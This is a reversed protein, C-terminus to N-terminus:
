TWPATDVAMGLSLLIVLFVLLGRLRSDDFNEHWFTLCTDDAFFLYDNEELVCKLDNSYVDYLLPGNKSGQVVGINQNHKLSTKGFESM